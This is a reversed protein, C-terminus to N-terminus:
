QIALIPTSVLLFPADSIQFKLTSSIKKMKWIVHSQFPLGVFEQRSGVLVAHVNHEIGVAELATPTRDSILLSRNSALIEYYRTGLHSHKESTAATIKTQRLAEFYQQKTKLKPGDLVRLSSNKLEQISCIMERRLPAYRRIIKEFSACNGKGCNASQGSNGRNLGLVRLRRGHGSRLDPVSCGCGKKCNTSNELELFLHRWSMAGTFLIDNFYSEESDVSILSSEVGLPIFECPIGGSLKTCESKWTPTPIVILAIPHEKAKAFAKITQMRRDAFKWVKNFYLVVPVHSFRKGIAALTKSLVNAPESGQDYSSVVVDPTGEFSDKSDVVTINM